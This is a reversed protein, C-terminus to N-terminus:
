LTTWVTKTGDTIKFNVDKRALIDIVNELESKYFRKVSRGWGTFIEVRMM